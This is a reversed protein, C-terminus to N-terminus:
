SIGIGNRRKKKLEKKQQDKFTRSISCNTMSIWGVGSPFWFFVATTRAYVNMWFIFSFLAHLIYAFYLSPKAPLRQYSFYSSNSHCDPVLQWTPQSADCAMPQNSRLSGQAIRRDFTISRLWVIPFFCRNFSYLWPSGWIPVTCKKIGCRGFHAYM